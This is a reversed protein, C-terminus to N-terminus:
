RPAYDFNINFTSAAVATDDSDAIGTVVCFGLGLLFSTGLSVTVNSGGGNAATSAAPIALVKKPTDTGCTPATAKDYFKVYAPASGVGSLQASLLVHPGAAVLTANDSNLAILHFPTGTCPTTAMPTGGLSCWVVTNTQAHAPQSLLALFFVALAIWLGRKM